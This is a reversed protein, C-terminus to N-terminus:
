QWYWTQVQAMGAYYGVAEAEESQPLGHPWYFWANGIHYILAAADGESYTFGYFIQVMENVDGPLMSFHVEAPGETRFFLFYFPGGAVNYGIMYDGAAPLVAWMEGGPSYGCVDMGTENTGSTYLNAMDAASGIPEVRVSPGSPTGAALSFNEAAPASVSTGEESCGYLCVLGFVLLMCAVISKKLSM